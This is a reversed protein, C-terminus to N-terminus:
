RGEESSRWARISEETWREAGPALVPDVAIPLAERALRMLLRLVSIRVHPQYEGLSAILRDRDTYVALGPEGDLSRIEFTVADPDSGPKRPQIPVYVYAVADPADNMGPQASAGAEPEHHRGPANAPGTAGIDSAPRVPQLVTGLLDEVSRDGDGM